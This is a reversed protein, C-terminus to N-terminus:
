ADKIAELYRRMVDVHYGDTGYDCPRVSMLVHIIERFVKADGEEPIIEVM